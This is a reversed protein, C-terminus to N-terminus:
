EGRYPPEEPDVVGVLDLLRSGIYNNLKWLVRQLEDGQEFLRAETTTPGDDGEREGPSGIFQSALEDLADVFSRIRMDDVRARAAFLDTTLSDLETSLITYEETAARDRSPEQQAYAALLLRQAKANYDIAVQQLKVLAETQTTRHFQGLDRRDQERARWIQSLESLLWGTVLTGVSLLATGLQSV